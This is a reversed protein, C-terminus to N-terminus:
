KHISIRMTTESSISVNTIKIDGLVKGQGGKFAINKLSIQQIKAPLRINVSGDQNVTQTQADAYEVGEISIDAGILADAGPLLLDIVEDLNTEGTALSKDIGQQQVYDTNDFAVNGQAVTDRMTEESLPQMKVASTPEVNATANSVLLPQLPALFVAGLTAILRYRSQKKLAKKLEDPSVWGQQILIEGLKLQKSTQLSLAKYLQKESILGKHLLLTGLRSKSTNNKKLM